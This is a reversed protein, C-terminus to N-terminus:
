LIPAWPVLPSRAFNLGLATWRPAQAGLRLRYEHWSRRAPASWGLEAVGALKPFAMYEFDSLTGLTESWLPAEVGVVSEAPLGAFVESVEWDYARRVDVVGAWTLGLVTTVDYKMDLYLRDAPSLLVQSGSAAARLLDERFRTAAAATATDDAAEGDRRWLPRWVQVISGPRLPASAVEDWGVLRKGHSAVIAQVREIFGAYEDDSITRVEDGGVHFWAGTTHASIEGIVDDLFQYTVEKSPCLASFGVETGTYLPPAVGDCNLEPVSALAANTHGPMDIEPVITVFHEDAYRVLAAYEATTYFGGGRGGVETSAGQETLAPWSPIEIRWGQDDALHLHLRNLKYLAMWDIFREVDEPPLFHRSVDLMAGRWAYRPRDVVRLAPVPLPRVHAASYEVLPPLLHRLTQVGYFLGAVGGGQIVIEDPTVNLAYGESGLSDPAGQLTLRIRPTAGDAPADVVPPQTEITNGILASLLEGIRRVQADGADIVIWTSDSVQVPEGGAREVSLPNPIISHVSGPPECAVQLVSLAFVAGAVFM